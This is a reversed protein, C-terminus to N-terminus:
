HREEKLTHLCASTFCCTSGELRRWACNTIRRLRRRAVCRTANLRCDSWASLIYDRVAVTQVLGLQTQLTDCSKRVADWADEFGGVKGQLSLVAAEIESTPPRPRM